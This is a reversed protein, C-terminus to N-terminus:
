YLKVGRLPETHGESRNRLCGKHNSRFTNLDGYPAISPTPAVPRTDELEGATLGKVHRKCIPSTKCVKYLLDQSAGLQSARIVLEKITADLISSDPLYDDWENASVLPIGVTMVLVLAILYRTSLTPVTYSM